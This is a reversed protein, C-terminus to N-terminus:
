SRADQLYKDYAKFYANQQNISKVTKGNSFAEYAHLLTGVIWKKDPKGTPKSYARLITMKCRQIILETTADDCFERVFDDLKADRKVFRVLTVFPLTADSARNLLARSMTRGDTVCKDIFDSNNIYTDIVVTRPVSVKARLKRQLTSSLPATGYLMAAYIGSTTTATNRSKVDEPMYDVAKRKSGNDIFKFDKEPVDFLVWMQVPKGYLIVASCRHQGNLLQGNDSIMIPSDMVDGHWNGTDMEEAYQLVVSEQIRRNHPYNNDLWLQAQDPTVWILQANFSQM